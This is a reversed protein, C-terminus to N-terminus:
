GKDGSTGRFVEDSSEEKIRQTQETLYGKIWESVEPSSLKVENGLVARLERTDLTFERLNVRRHYVFDRDENCTIMLLVTSNIYGLPIMDVHSPVFKATVTTGVGKESTIELSGGTMEAEMKFLPIGLGVRRTKRTTFFPDAACAAQEATMGAGNDAVTITLSDAHTNECIDIVILEAGASISNQAIDMVNLSLERM